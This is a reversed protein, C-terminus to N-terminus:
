FSRTASVSFRRLRPDGYTSYGTLSYSNIAVVPPTQNFVNQIGASVRFGNLVGPRAGFDYSVHLDSYNQSSIRRSGQLTIANDLLLQGTPTELNLTPFVNYSDYYQTNWRVQWDSWTWEVGANAQWELPGDANGAYNLAPANASLQRTSDLHWTAVAYVRFDGFRSTAREYDAQFDVSEFASYLLNLPSTDISILRGPYGAPDGPAPAARVVRGPFVDPNALLFDIPVGGIEDSKEIKTYDASIRLGNLPRLILGASISESEEPRLAVNGSGGVSTLPYNIIENGRLPDRVGLGFPATGAFSALQVVSPPLFGTAYSGRLTLQRFPAWRAAFTYNTSDFRAELETYEPLPADPDGVLSGLGAPPSHTVYDDYRVAGRLELEHVFPMNNQASVLPLVLEAYGSVTEQDRPAFVVYIPDRTVTDVFMNSTRKIELREQQLALTLTAEGGPLKFLPGSARISPNIFASEYPGSVNTPETFLYAGFDVPSQLPDLITRGACNAPDAAAGLGCYEGYADVVSQYGASENSTWTRNYEVNLAWRYPLRIITGVNLADTQSEFVFPFALGRTPFSVRIAQQFPNTPANAELTASSPPLLSGNTEGRNTFRSYNVFGDISDTFERRVQVNFSQLEPATLLGRELGAVSDPIDLNFTGANQLLLAGSDSGVGAYGLPLSTYNSGLSAGGYAPDLTLVAGSASRINVGNGLPPTGNGLFPSVNRRGLDIGDQILDQRDRVLLTGSRSVSGGFTVRTRGGELSFGGNIDIRGSPAAFDFTDAYTTTIDVGRYDSRLIINIVGGVANGGYIGGASTPLVEIREISGLPIGNIDAQGPAFDQNALNGLRRGNVLILTQNSGLGRLNLNSYSSGRGTVQAQSGGYGANQPLRTRLFDEVTTAQSARIEDQDFVVYPQADDESRRVDANLSRSGKVLIEAVETVDGAANSGRQAGAEGRVTERVILLGSRGVDASLGTGALMLDLAARTTFTGRVAPARKGRVSRNDFTIEQRTARALARLAGGLDQAPVNLEYTQTQAYAPVGQMFLALAALAVGSTLMGQRTPRIPM